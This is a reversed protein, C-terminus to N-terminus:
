LLFNICTESCLCITSPKERIHVNIIYFSAAWMSMQMHPSIQFITYQSFIQIRLVYKARISNQILTPLNPSSSILFTAKNHASGVGCYLSERELKMIPTSIYFNYSDFLLNKKKKLQYTRSRSKHLISDLIHIMNQASDLRITVHIKINDM